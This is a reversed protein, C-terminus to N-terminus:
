RREYRTIAVYRGGRDVANFCHEWNYRTHQPDLHKLDMKWLLLHINDNINDAWYQYPIPWGVYLQSRHLFVYPKETVYYTRENDKRDLKFDRCMMLHSKYYWMTHGYKHSMKHVCDNGCIKSLNCIAMDSASLTLLM